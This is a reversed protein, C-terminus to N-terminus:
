TVSSTPLWHEQVTNTGLKSVHVLNLTHSVYLAGEFSNTKNTSLCVNTLLDTFPTNQGVGTKMPCQLLRHSALWSRCTDDWLWDNLLYSDSLESFPPLRRM